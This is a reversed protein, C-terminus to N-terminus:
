AILPHCLMIRKEVNSKTAPTNDIGAGRMPNEQADVSRLGYESFLINGYCLLSHAFKRLQRLHVGFIGLRKSREM